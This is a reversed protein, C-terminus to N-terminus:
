WSLSKNHIIVEVTRGLIYVPGDKFTIKLPSKEGTLLNNISPRFYKSAM